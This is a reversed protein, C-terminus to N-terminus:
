TRMVKMPWGKRSPQVSNGLDLKGIRKVRKSAYLLVDFRIERGAGEIDNKEKKRQRRQIDQPTGRKIERGRCEVDLLTGRKIERVGREVASKEKSKQRKQVDHLTGRKIGRGGREVVTMERSWQRRRMTFEREDVDYATKGHAERMLPQFPRNIWTSSQNYNRLSAM